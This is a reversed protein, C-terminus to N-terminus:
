FVCVAMDSLARWDKVSLAEDASLALAASNDNDSHVSEGDRLGIPLLAGHLLRAVVHLFRRVRDRRRHLWVHTALRTETRQASRECDCFDVVCFAPSEAVPLSLDSM